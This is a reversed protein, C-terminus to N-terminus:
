GIVSVSVAGGALAHALEHSLSAEVSVLMQPGGAGTGLPSASTGETSLDVVRAPIPAGTPDVASAPLLSVEAGPRLHPLLVAPVPVAMLVRGEGIPEEGPDELMAPVLATGAGVPHRLTRGVLDEPQSSAGEPVLQPAVAVRRLHEASLMTGAPLEETAVVTEIGRSSPPLLAPAAVAVAGLLVLILLARRRRRLARRWLPLHRCLRDLM